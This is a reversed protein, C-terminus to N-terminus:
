GIWGNEILWKNRESLLQIQNRGLIRRAFLRIPFKLKSPLRMTLAFVVILLRVQWKM